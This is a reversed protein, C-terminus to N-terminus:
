KNVSLDYIPSDSDTLFLSNFTIEVNKETKPYIYFISTIPYHTTINDTIKIKEYQYIFYEHNVQMFRKSEYKSLIIIEAVCKYEFNLNDHNDIIIKLECLKMPLGNTNLQILKLLDVHKSNEKYQRYIQYIEKFRMDLLITNGYYLLINGKENWPLTIFLSTILDGSTDTNWIKQGRGSFGKITSNVINRRYTTPIMSKMQTITPYKLRDMFIDMCTKQEEEIINPYSLETEM